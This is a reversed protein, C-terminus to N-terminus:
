EYIYRCTINAKESHYAELDQRKKLWDRWSDDDIYPTSACQADLLSADVRKQARERIAQLRSEKTSM